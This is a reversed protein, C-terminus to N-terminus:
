LPSFSRLSGLAAPFVLVTDFRRYNGPGRYYYFFSSGDLSLGFYLLGGPRGPAHFKPGLVVTPHPRDSRRQQLPYCRAKSRPPDGNLLRLGYGELLSGLPPSTKLRTRSTDLGLAAAASRRTSHYFRLTQGVTLNPCDTDIDRPIRPLSRLRHHDLSPRRTSRAM